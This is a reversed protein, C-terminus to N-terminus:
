ELWLFGATVKSVRGSAGPWMAPAVVGASGEEAAIEEVL